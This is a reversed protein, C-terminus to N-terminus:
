QGSHSARYACSSELVWLESKNVLLIICTSLSLPLCLSLSFSVSFPSLWLSISFSLYISWIKHFSCGLRVKEVFIIM